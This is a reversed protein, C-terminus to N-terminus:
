IWKNKLALTVVESLSQCGTKELITKRQKNITEVSRNSNYAIEKSTLGNSVHKIIELEKDTIGMEVQSENVAYRKEFVKKWHKKDDLVHIKCFMQHEKYLDTINTVTGIIALPNRNGDDALYWFQQLMTFYEGTKQKLRYNISIRTSPFEVEPMQYVFEMADPFVSNMLVESDIPHFNGIFGVPGATMVEEATYGEVHIANPSVYIFEGIRYDIVFLIADTQQSLPVYKEIESVFEDKNVLGNKKIAQKAENFFTKYGKKAM